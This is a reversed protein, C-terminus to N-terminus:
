GHATGTVFVAHADAEEAKPPDSAAYGPVQGLM